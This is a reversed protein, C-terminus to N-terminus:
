EPLIESLCYSLPPKHDSSITRIQGAGNDVSLLSGNTVRSDSDAVGLYVDLGNGNRIFPSSYRKFRKAATINEFITSDLYKGDLLTDQIELYYESNMYSDIYSLGGRSTFFGPTVVLFDVEVTAITQFVVSNYLFHLPISILVLLAWLVLRKRNIYPLDGLSLVGVHLWKGKAHAQDIEDRTPAVLRQICYSSAGLLASGPVNIFLHFATMWQFAVECSGEYATAIGDQPKGAAGDM